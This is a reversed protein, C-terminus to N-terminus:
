TESQEQQETPLSTNASQQPTKTIDSLVSVLQLQGLKFKEQNELEETFWKPTYPKSIQEWNIYEGYKLEKAIEEILRLNKNKIVEFDPKEKWYEDILAKAVERVNKSDYFVIDITNLANVYPMSSRNVRSMMLANLIYMKEKRQEAYEARMNAVWVALLPASVVAIISVIQLWIPMEM